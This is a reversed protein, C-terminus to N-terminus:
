HSTLSFVSNTLLSQPLFASFVEAKEENNCLLDGARDLLPGVKEKKKRISNICRCFGKKNGKM